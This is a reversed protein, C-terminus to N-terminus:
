QRRLCPPQQSSLNGSEGAKAPVPAPIVIEEAQAPTDRVPKQMQLVGESADRVPKQMQLGGKSADWTPKQMRLVGEPVDRVPRQM